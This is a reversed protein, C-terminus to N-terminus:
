NRRSLPGKRILVIVGIILWLVLFSFITGWMIISPAYDPGTSLAHRWHFLLHLDTGMVAFYWGLHILFFTFLLLLLSKTARGLSNTKMLTEFISDLHNRVLNREYRDPTKSTGLKIEM